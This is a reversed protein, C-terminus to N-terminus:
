DLLGDVYSNVKEFQRDELSIIKKIAEKREDPVFGISSNYQRGCLYDLSVGYYDAIKILIDIDPKVQGLEYKNYNVRPIGLVQAFETQNLKTNLRLEKLNIM